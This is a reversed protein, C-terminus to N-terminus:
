FKPKNRATSDICHITSTLSVGTVHFADSQVLKTSKQCSASFCPPASYGLVGMDKVVLNYADILKNTPVLTETREFILHDGTLSACGAFAQGAALRWKATVTIKRHMLVCLNLDPMNVSIINKGHAMLKGTDTGSAIEENTDADIIVTEVDYM